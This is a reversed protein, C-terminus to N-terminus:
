NEESQGTAKKRTRPNEYANDILDMLIKTSPNNPNRGFFKMAIYYDSEDQFEFVLRMKGADINKYVKSMKEAEEPGYVDALQSEVMGREVELNGVIDEINEDSMKLLTDLTKESEPLLRMLLEEDGEFGDYLEKILRVRKRTDDVGHLRNLTALLLNASKDDVQWIECWVSDKGLEKLIQLRNHGDLLVYDDGHELVILSPYKDTREIHKKLKNFQDPTMENANLDNSRILSVSLLKSEM